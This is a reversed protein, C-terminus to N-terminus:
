DGGVARQGLGAPAGPQAGSAAATGGGASGYPLELWAHDPTLCPAALLMGDTSSWRIIAALGDRAAMTALYDRLAPDRHADRRKPDVWVQLVEVLRGNLHVANLAPDIVYGAHDPRRLPRTSADVLWRCSWLRCMEPRSTYIRCGRSSLHKCRVNAPKDEDPLTV